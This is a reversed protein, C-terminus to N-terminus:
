SLEDVKAALIFDNETLGDISHTWIEIGVKGYTLSINPHHGEDEAIEGLKNVFSLASVFDPFELEKQLHHNDIVSWGKLQGLMEGIQSPTLASVGGECAECKKKALETM